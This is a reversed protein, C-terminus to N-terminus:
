EAALTYWRRAEEYDPECGIGRAHILGTNAQADASGQEAAARSWRLAEGPNQTVEFGNPYLLGRNRETAEPDREAAARHWRSPAAAQARYGDLYLLSLQHQAAAHGLKRREGFGPPPM